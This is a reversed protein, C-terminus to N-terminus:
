PKKQYLRWQEPGTSVRSIITEQYAMIFDSSAEWEELTIGLRRELGDRTAVIWKVSDVTRPSLNTVHRHGFPKFLAYATHDGGGAFGVLDANPIRERFVALLEGRNSYTNYVQVMRSRVGAPIIPLSKVASKPLLPRNPNLLLTPILFAAPILSIMGHPTTVRFERRNGWWVIALLLMPTFPVLLRPTGGIGSKAAFALLAICTAAAFSPALWDSPVRAVASKRPRKVAWALLVLTIGLGIGAGEETPMDQLLSPNFCGYNEKVWSAWSQGTLWGKFHTNVTQAGPALPPTFLSITFDISNGIVAAVPSNPEFGQINGPNGNWRGTNKWCLVAMPFFSVLLALPALAGGLMLLRRFGTVRVGVWIWYVAIPLGLPLTTAKISTMAAAALASVAMCLLPKTRLAEAAFALSALALAAGVMDNGISGAQTAVGYAMPWVWMWWRASRPPIRLGRAAVFFLGPLLLYPIFNILFLSRDNGTFLVLPASMWEFGTGTINLRFDIGDIWHWRQEQLWYLLKPMRYTLGDYNSPPNTLAGALILATVVCWAAFAPHKQFRRIPKGTFRVGPGPGSAKWFAFAAALAVPLTALYGTAHLAGIASLGWGAAQCWLVYVLWLGALRLALPLSGHTRSDRM